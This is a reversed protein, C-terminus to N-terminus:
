VVGYVTKCTICFVSVLLADNVPEASLLGSAGLTRVCKSCAIVGLAVELLISIVTLKNPLPALLEKGFM